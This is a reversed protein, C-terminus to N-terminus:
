HNNLRSILDLAVVQKADKVKGSEVEERGEREIETVQLSSVSANFRPSFWKKRRAEMLIEAEAQKVITYDGKTQYRYQKKGVWSLDRVMSLSQRLVEPHYQLRYFRRRACEVDAVAGQQSKAVQKEGVEVVRDLKLTPIGCRLDVSFCSM